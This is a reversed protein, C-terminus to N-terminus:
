KCILFVGQLHLGFEKKYQLLFSYLWGYAGLITSAPDYAKSKFM